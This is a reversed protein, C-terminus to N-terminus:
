TGAPRQMLTIPPCAGAQAVGVVSFGVREYFAVTRPNPTELYAPLGSQDVVELCARMLRTGLGQGQRSREVGFWPLYWHAGTPHGAAMQELTAFADEHLGAATTEVLVQVVAEGDPTRGPGFWFAVAAFNGLRWVTRDRFADGGFAAIFAPFHERYEADGPYLWRKVPDDQFASVLLRIAADREPEAVVAFDPESV